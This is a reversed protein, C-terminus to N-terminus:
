FGRPQSLGPVCSDSSLCSICCGLGFPLYPWSCWEPGEIICIMQSASLKINQSSADVAHDNDLHATGKYVTLCLSHWQSVGLYTVMLDCHSFQVTSQSQPLHQRSLTWMIQWNHLFISVNKFGTSKETGSFRISRSGRCTHPVHLSESVQHLSEGAIHCPCTKELPVAYTSYGWSRLDSLMTLCSCIGCEQHEYTCCWYWQWGAKTWYM